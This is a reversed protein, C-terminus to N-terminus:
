HFFFFPMDEPWQAMDTNLEEEFQFECTTLKLWIIASRYLDIM